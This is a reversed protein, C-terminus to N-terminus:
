ETQEKSDLQNSGIPGMSEMIALIEQVAQSPAKPEDAWERLHYPLVESDHVSNGLDFLFRALPERMTPDKEAIGVWCRIEEYTDSLHGSGEILRGFLTVLSAREAGDLCLTVPWERLGRDVHVYRYRTVDLVCRLGTDRLRPVASRSTWRLLEDLIRGALGDSWFLQTMSFSVALRLPFRTSRALRRLRPIATDLMEVGIQTGLARVATVRLALPQDRRLWDDLMRSVLPALGPSELFPFQLAAMAAAREFRTGACAWPEIIRMRAHEFEFASLLGVAVGARVCVRLDSNNGLERLWERILEHAAPYEQWVRNLVARPYSVDTFEVATVTVVGYNTEESSRFSQARAAEIVESNRMEFAPWTPTRDPEEESALARALMLAANSVLYIPMRNFVALAITFARSYLSPQQDFWQRFGDGLAADHREVVEGMTTHGNAVDALERGLAALVRAAPRDKTYQLLLRRVDDHEFLDGPDRNLQYRVENRVLETPDAPSGVGLVFEGIDTRLDDADDLLVIMRCGQGSLRDRLQELYFRHLHAVQGPGFAEMLYGTHPILEIDFSRLEVHPALTYVNVTTEEDLARLAVTTRGWGQPGRLLLLSQTALRRRIDHFDDPEAFTRRIRALREASVVGRTAARANAANGLNDRGVQTGITADGGILNTANITVHRAGGFGLLSDMADATSTASRRTDGLLEEDATEAPPAQGDQNGEQEAAGSDQGM